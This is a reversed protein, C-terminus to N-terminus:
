FEPHLKRYTFGIEQHRERLKDLLPRISIESVSNAINCLELSDNKLDYVEILKGQDFNDFANVQYHIMYECNRAVFIIPRERIDPCGSDVFESVAIEDGNNEKIAEGTVSDPKPIHCKECITALIDKSTHYKENVVGIPASGDYIILPIHYNETHCNNVVNDRITNCGYSSGHDACIIILSDNLLNNKKLNQCFEKICDDVYILACDYLINGRYDKHLNNLYNEFLKFEKDILESDNIDFSFYNVRNHLEEPHCHLMIPTSAKKVLIEELATRLINRISPLTKYFDDPQYGKAFKGCCLTYFVQRLYGTLERKKITEVTSSILKRFNFKHNRFNLLFQKKEIKDLFQKHKEFVNKQLFDTDLGRSFDFRKIKYFVCKEGEELIRKAYLDPSEKFSDYENVFLKYNTDWDYCKAWNMISKFSDKEGNRWKEFFNNWAIFTLELQKKVDYMEIETLPRKEKLKAFHALRHGWVSDYLFDSTFYTYDINKFERTSYMYYPLFFDFVTYGARKFVDLYTEKAEHLNHMYGGYNLSDFGTLLAKSGAETHPGQSYMNKCVLSKKCLEDLFPTPSPGYKSDGLKDAIFSDIVIFFVNKM